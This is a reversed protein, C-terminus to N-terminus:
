EGRIQKRWVWGALFLLGIVTPLGAILVYAIWDFGRMFAVYWVAWGIFLLAGFWERKWAIIIAITLLISPILHMFLGLITEWFSLQADFIDLAFLSIFLVFLIGAIRPTWFLIQKLTKNMTDEPIM